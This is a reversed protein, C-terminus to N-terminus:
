RLEGASATVLPDLDLTRWSCWGLSRAVLLASALATTIAGRWIHRGPALYESSLQAAASTARLDLNSIDLDFATDVMLASIDDTTPLERRAPWLVAYNDLSVLEVHEEVSVCLPKLAAALDHGTIVEAYLDCEAMRHDVAVIMEAESGADRAIFEYGFGFGRHDSGLDRPEQADFRAYVLGVGEATVAVAAVTPTEPGSSQGPDGFPMRHNALNTTNSLTEDGDMDALQTAGHQPQALPETTTDGLVTVM